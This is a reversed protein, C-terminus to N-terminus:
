YITEVCVASQRENMKLYSDGSASRASNMRAIPLSTSLDCKLTAWLRKEKGRIGRLM